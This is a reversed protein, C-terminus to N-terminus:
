PASLSSYLLPKKWKRKETLNAASNGSWAWRACAWTRRTWLIGSGFVMSHTPRPWAESNWRGSFWRSPRSLSNSRPNVQFQGQFDRSWGPNFVLLIDVRSRSMDWGWGWGSGGSICHRCWGLWPFRSFLNDSYIVDSGTSVKIHFWEPLDLTWKAHITWM